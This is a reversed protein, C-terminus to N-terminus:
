FTIAQILRWPFTSAPATNEATCTPPFGYGNNSPMVNIRYVNYKAALEDMSLNATGEGDIGDLIQFEIDTIDVDAAFSYFGFATDGGMYDQKDIYALYCSNGKGLFYYIM